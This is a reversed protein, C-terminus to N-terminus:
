LDLDVDVTVGAVDEGALTGIGDGRLQEATDGGLAGLLHHDLLDALGLALGHELFVGAHLAVEHLAGNLTELASRGGDGDTLGLRNQRAAFLDGALRVVDALTDLGDDEVNALLAM